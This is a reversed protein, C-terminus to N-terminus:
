AAHEARGLREFIEKAQKNAEPSFCENWTEIPIYCYLDAAPHRIRGIEGRKLLTHLARKAARELADSPKRGLDDAMITRIDPWTIWFQPGSGDFDDGQADACKQFYDNQAYILAKIIRQLRGLGRSM